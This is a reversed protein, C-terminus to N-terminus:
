YKAVVPGGWRYNVRVLGIDVDQGIRDTRAVLGAPTPFDVSHHGLFLHDYEAGVSWNQAFGWELGVGLTAGWRTESASSFTVGAAAPVSTDYKGAAMGAGGKMYFLLNNATYGFQGSFLGFADIKSHNTVSPVVLALSANSGSLDAWNGQAELGFIWRSTQWRYGIQGGVTGGNGDHCGENAAPVFGVGLRSVIDWCAHATGGGGNIGAYFGSWDYITALQPAKTVPDAGLDAASAPAAISVAVLGAAAILIKKM